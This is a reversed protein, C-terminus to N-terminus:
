GDGVDFGEERGFLLSCLVLLPPFTFGTPAGSLTKRGLLPGLAHDLLSHIVLLLRITVIDHNHVLNVLLLLPLLHRLTANISYVDHMQSVCVCLGVGKAESHM